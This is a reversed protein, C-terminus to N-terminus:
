FQLGVGAAAGGQGRTNYTATAKVIIRGNDSSKSLGLAIAQEGQWTSIGMGVIGQGPEFAQPVQSMAMASAVGGNSNRRVKSLDFSLANIRSDTYSNASNLITTLGSNLQGVNVGDTANVGAGVNTITNGGMNLTDGAALSIGNQNITPGNTITVSDVKLNPNVAVEVNTGNQTVVVNNGATFSATAGPAVNAVSTGKVVGTGTAATTVNWGATASGGIAGLADQVNNYTTNGVTLGATVAGTVPDYVSTGGLASAMSDGLAFLQSGNVADTSTANLTAATVGTIKGTGGDNVTVNGFKPSEAMEINVAGSAPDTTTRINGGSYNGATSGVGQIALTQGNTRTVTGGSNGTFSLNVSGIANTLQSVNVADTPDTGAAVNIIKNGGMDLINGAAMTIGGNNITPGNNIQISDLGTLDTALAVQVETGNQTVVMNNGATFTATGGPAVNTVSTGIATGTGTAGTTVNWGANAIDAVDEIALNTAYLQSGNIADTSTATVQGAAVNQIQREAGVSGVSVASTPAGGAYLYTTGNIVGSPTPTVVVTVSGSGLAVDGNNIAIAGAGLALSNVAQANAGVGLATASFQGAQANLGVAMSNVGSANAGTGLAASGSGSATAGSGMAVASGGTAAAGNGYASSNTGSALAANGIATDGAGLATASVGIAINNDAGGGTAAAQAGLGIAISRTGTAQAAIGLAIADTNSAVANTGVATSNIGSASANVGAALGGVGTAGDNNYNGQPVGADNVSYYRTLQGAVDDIASNTAFLQSGNIADTSTATVQGAAVNQIQREAGATGVSVSTFPAGGAYTYTTGNIIGTPTAVPTSSVSGTGLAVDEANTAVSYAGLAVAGDAKASSATGIAITNSFPGTQSSSLNAGDGIAINANGQAYQLAGSGMSVNRDGIVNRMAGPGVGTNLDGASFLGSAEGISTNNGGSQQRGADLGIFTSGGTSASGLGALSGIVVDRDGTATAGDGMAVTSAGIASAGVGAAVANTGTAGDNNYNAQQV